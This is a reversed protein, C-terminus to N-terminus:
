RPCKLDAAPHVSVRQPKVNDSFLVFTQGLQSGIVRISEVRGDVVVCSPRQAGSVDEGAPEGGGMESSAGGSQTQEAGAPEPAASAFLASAPVAFATMPEALKSAAPLEGPTDGGLSQRYIRTQALRDLESRDLIRGESDLDFTDEGVVVTRAGPVITGSVARVHATALTGQASLVTSEVSVRQGISTACSAVVTRVAPIWMFTDKLIRASSAVPERAARAGRDTLLRNVANLTDRDLRQEGGALYGLRTLETALARVDEGSDGIGLDRWMPVSTALAVAPEGEVSLVSSGSEITSGPACELSTVLGERPSSIPTVPGTDAVLTVPRRDDVLRETVAIEKVPDAPKVAAPTAPTLVLFATGAGLSFVM